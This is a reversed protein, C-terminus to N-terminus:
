RAGRPCRTAARGRSPGGQGHVGASAVGCCGRPCRSQLRDHRPHSTPWPRSDAHALVEVAEGDLPGRRRPDLSLARGTPVEAGAQAALPAPLYRCQVRTCVM